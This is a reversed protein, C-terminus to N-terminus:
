QFGVTVDDSQLMLNAGCKTTLLPNAISLTDIVVPDPSIAFAQALTYSDSTWCDEIWEDKPLETLTLASQSGDALHLTAALEETDVDITVGQLGNEPVDDAWVDYLQYSGSEVFVDQAVPVPEDSEHAPDCATATVSLALTLLLATKSLPRTAKSQFM